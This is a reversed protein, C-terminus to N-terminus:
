LTVSIPVHILPIQVGASHVESSGAVRVHEVDPAEEGYAVDERVDDDDEGVEGYDAEVSVIVQLEPFGLPVVVDPVLPQLYSM